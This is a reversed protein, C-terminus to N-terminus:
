GVVGELRAIFVGVVRKRYVLLANYDGCRGRGRVKGHGFVRGDYKGSSNYALSARLRRVVGGLCAVRDAPIVRRFQVPRDPIAPTRGGSRCRHTRIELGAVQQRRSDGLEDRHSRASKGDMAVIRGGM